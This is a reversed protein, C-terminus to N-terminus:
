DLDFDLDFDFDLQVLTPIIIVFFWVVVVVVFRGPDKKIKKANRVFRLGSNSDETPTRLWLGWDYDDGCVAM